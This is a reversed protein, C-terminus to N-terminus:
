YAGKIVRGTDAEFTVKGNRTRRSLDLSTIVAPPVNNGYYFLGDVIMGIMKGDTWFWSVTGTVKQAHSPLSATSALLIVTATCIKKLM